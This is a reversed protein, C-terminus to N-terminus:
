DDRRRRHKKARSYFSLSWASVVSVLVFSANILLVIYCAAAPSSADIRSFVTAAAALTGALSLIIYLFAKNWALHAYGSALLALIFLNYLWPASADSLM